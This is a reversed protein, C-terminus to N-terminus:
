RSTESDSPEVKVSHLIQWAVCVAPNGPTKMPFVDPTLNTNGKRMGGVLHWVFTYRYPEGVLLLHNLAGKEGQPKPEAGPTALGVCPERRFKHM